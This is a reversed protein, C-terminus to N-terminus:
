KGKSLVDPTTKKKVVFDFKTLHFILKELSANVIIVKPLESPVDMKVPSAESSETSPNSMHFWFALEGSLEQQPIFRKEFDKSLQNLVVYKVPKINVKKELVMPDSQKLLMKSRRKEELMLTKKRIMNSDSTIENEPYNVLHTQESYMMEQASKNIMDNHTHESYPEESLIYSGYGSLNAMLAVKATSIDDCDSDYADLDDVQYTANNTIITQTVPGEAIGPDALFELKEENLVKGNGQAKVLLVKDKFWASDRKRKPETCQRAMHGERQCNFCKVVRQQGSTRGGNGSGTFTTAVALLNSIGSGSTQVKQRKSSWRVLKDGLFQMSRSTSRRTYQCGAHDADTFATLSISSDKPYWLGRNVTGRLYWFIRKVAHLHKETPRAQYRACMCIAHLDPRSTTLYLLTGIMGRYHSPDITKGEKDEDLKSKEVMLTDVNLFATKVDMQYVVMNMHAAYALFIRIAELRAVLAFSDEFDIGEEQHYGRAVLRAKNKIIGGLEDLKVKYIWKLTIVM